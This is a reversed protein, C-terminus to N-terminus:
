ARIGHTGSARQARRRRATAGVLGLGALLMAYTEPEPVAATYTIDASFQVSGAHVSFQGGAIGVGNDNHFLTITNNGTVFPATYSQNVSAPAFAHGLTYEFTVFPGASDFAFTGSGPGFIGWGVINVGNVQLVATDNAFVSHINILANTFGSPLVVSHELRNFATGAFNVSQSIDVTVASAPAVLAAGLIVTAIAEKYSM